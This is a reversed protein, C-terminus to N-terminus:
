ELNKNKKIKSIWSSWRLLDRGGCNKFHQEIAIRFLIYKRGRKGKKFDLPFYTCTQFRFMNEM